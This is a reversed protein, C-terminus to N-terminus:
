WWTGRIHSSCLKVTECKAVRTKSLHTSHEKPLSSWRLGAVWIWSGGDKWSAADSDDWTNEGFWKIAMYLHTQM